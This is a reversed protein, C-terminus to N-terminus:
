RRKYRGFDIIKLDDKEISYMANGLYSLDNCCWNLEEVKLFEKKRLENARNLLKGDLENIKKYEKLYEMLFAPYKGDFGKFRISTLKDVLFVGKPKPVSIRHNYFDVGVNYEDILKNASWLCDGLKLGSSIIKGAFKNVLFVCGETGGGVYNERRVFSYKNELESLDWIRSMEKITEM